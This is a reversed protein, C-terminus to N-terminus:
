VPRRGGRLVIGGARHVDGPSRVRFGVDPRRRPGRRVGTVVAPVECTADAFQETTRRGPSYPLCRQAGDATHWPGCFEGWATGASRIWRSGDEGAILAGFSSGVAAPVSEARVFVDDPVRAGMSRAHDGIWVTSPACTVGDFAFMPTGVPIDRPPGVEWASVFGQGCEPITPTWLPIVAPVDAHASMLVPDTCAADTFQLLESGFEPFCRWEGGEAVHFSCSEGRETDFFGEVFSVGGEATWAIAELRTGSAILPSDVVPDPPAPPVPVIPGGTPVPPLAPAAAPIPASSSPAVAVEATGCAAFLAVVPIM